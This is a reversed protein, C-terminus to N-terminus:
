KQSSGAGFSQQKDKCSNEKPLNSLKLVESKTAFKAPLVYDKTLSVNMQM